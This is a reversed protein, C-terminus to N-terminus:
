LNKDIPKYQKIFEEITVLGYVLLYIGGKSEVDQQRLIQDPSQKNPWVKAEIALFRGNPSFLGSIDETGKKHLRLYSKRGSKDVVPRSGSNSRDVTVWSREHWLRKIIASVLQSESM